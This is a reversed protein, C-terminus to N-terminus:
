PRNATIHLNFSSDIDIQLPELGDARLQTRIEQRLAIIDRAGMSARIHRRIYLGALPAERWSGKDTLLLLEIHQEDSLYADFDGDRLKPNLTDDLLIDTAAAM